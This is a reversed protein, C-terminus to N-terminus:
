APTPWHGGPFRHAGRPPQPAQAPESQRHLSNRIATVDRRTLGIAALDQDSMVELRTAADYVSCHPSFLALLHELTKHLASLM